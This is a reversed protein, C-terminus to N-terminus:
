KLGSISGCAPGIARAIAGVVIQQRGEDLHELVRIEDLNRVRFDARRVAPARHQRDLDLRREIIKALDAKKTAAM